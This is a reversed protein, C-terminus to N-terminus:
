IISRRDEYTPLEPRRVLEQDSVVGLARSVFGRAGVKGVLERWREGTACLHVEPPSGVTFIGPLPVRLDSAAIFSSISFGDTWYGFRPRRCASCHWGSVPLGAAGVFEPGAPGLVEYFKRSRSGGEVRRIVLGNREEPSLLALFEASVVEALTSGDSGVNGFAGDYRRPAYTLQLPRESRPSSAAGCKRCVPREFFTDLRAFREERQEETEFSVVRPADTEFREDAGILYLEPISYKKEQESKPLPPDFELVAHIAGGNERIAEHLREEALLYTYAEARVRPETTTWLSFGDSSQCWGCLYVSHEM